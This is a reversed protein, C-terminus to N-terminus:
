NTIARVADMQIGCIGDGDGNNAIKLYGSEGWSSGWSNKVLYYAQGSSDTGYGAALVGHDLNTGCKASNLVGGSYFQFVLKDAEIAIATPATEISAMLGSSSGATVNTYSTCKVAGTCSSEKCSGDKGTYAYDTETCLANSETWLMATAMDGGNCGANGDATDCDVLEQESLSVLANGEACHAGEMSGTTSFSWCSGCSGQNKVQTVCGATNWDVSDANPTNNETISNVFGTSRYGRIRDLEANTWTSFENHALTFTNEPNANEAEILDHHAAFIEHRADFEATTAYSLNYQAVHRMFHFHTASLMTM